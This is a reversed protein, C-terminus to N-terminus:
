EQISSILNDLKDAFDSEPSEIGSGRLMNLANTESKQSAKLAGLYWDKSNLCLDKIYFDTLILGEVIAPNTISEVAKIKYYCEKPGRKSALLLLGATSKESEFEITAKESDDEFRKTADQMNQVIEIYDNQLSNVNGLIIMEDRFFLFLIGVILAVIGLVWLFFKKM